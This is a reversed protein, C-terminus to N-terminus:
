RGGDGTGGQGFGDGVRGGSRGREEGMGLREKARGGFPRWMRPVALCNRAAFTNNDGPLVTMPRRLPCRHGHRERSM